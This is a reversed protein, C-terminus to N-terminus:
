EQGEKKKSRNSIFLLLKQFFYSSVMVVILGSFYLVASLYSNKTLVINYINHKGNLSLGFFSKDLIVNLLMMILAVVVIISGGILCNKLKLECQKTRVLYVGWLALALHSIYNLLFSFHFKYSISFNYICSFTPSLIMGVVLLAILTAFYKRIQKPLVFFLPSVTFMFPSVNATPLTNLFNWDSPGNQIYAILVVFFYCIFVIACFVINTIMENKFRKMLIFVSIFIGIMAAIVVLYLFSM